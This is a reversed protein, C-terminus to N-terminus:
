KADTLIRERRATLIYPADAPPVMCCGLRTNAVRAQRIADVAV